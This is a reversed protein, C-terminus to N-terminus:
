AARDALEYTLYALANGLTRSSVFRLPKMDSAQAILREGAGVLVPYVTLRLEDALDYEMLTHALRISGYVVIDGALEKKLNTVEAVL